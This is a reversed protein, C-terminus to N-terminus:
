EGLASLGEAKVVRWKEAPFLLYRRVREKRWRLTPTFSLKRTGSRSSTLYLEVPGSSTATRGGPDVQIRLQDAPITVELREAERM